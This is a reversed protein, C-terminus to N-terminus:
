VRDDYIINGDLITMVTKGTLSMGHLPTNKSKSKITDDTVTWVRNADIIAMNALGGPELRGVPLDWLRAPMTSFRYIVDSMSLHGARVLALMTPVALELGIMGFAAREFNTERKEAAAHPAHDTALIDFRGSQLGALLEATNSAPRLPPNVKTDPHLAPADPGSDTTNHLTRSGGVWEDSMVLHHPMVEATVRAGRERMLEIIALGIGTSVHLAHLWGGSEAALLCDRAIFAEEAAAPIGRVELRRSVDGQHMSGGVLAPDECHVMIPLGLRKSAVLAEAMLQSNATSIGDDSFGVAGSAALADFDVLEQGDRGITIAAIPHVPIFAHEACERALWELTEVSDLAPVTNPMCAVATFGGAVAAATGTAITEKHEQGPARLHVHMDLWGPSVVYGTCDVEVSGEVGSSGQGIEVVQGDRVVLDDNRDLGIAPDILRGGKLVINM